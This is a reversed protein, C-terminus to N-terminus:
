QKTSAQPQRAPTATKPATAPPPATASNYAEMFKSFDLDITEPMRGTRDGAEYYLNPKTRIVRRVTQAGDDATHVDLDCFLVMDAMGLVIKRAKEPLTPVVRTFKGTRSDMEVERAHSILFLGFPLFALKTLVRQFENNIIAYGKGYALDSEHEVKYKRLIYECCFKYANDVTDIIITKFPHKGEGIEACATLLDEWSQIPVQFADLSNLGPETALFLANDAQACFTSNHVVFDNAVFNHSGEVTLDFVPEFSTPEISIVRDFIIPGLRDLQTEAARIQFLNQRLTEAKVAKEGLFGIEDIFRMLDNKACIQLEAGYLEGDRYRNRILSVIGFRSLMHQVQGVMQISTSSYSIKGQAEGSGDCSFLRNLFLKQKSRRLGFVFDPILKEASRLGDIGVERLHVIVNNRKGKKGRVRVHVVGSDNVFEVCEDGRAEVASEFDMRVIPDNKTFVPSSGNALSGDAILYALIKVLDDDTDGNCSLLPYEAVVAVRDATSLAALPKWGERTLFPHNATAEISRGTQTTLRYLQAPENELYASPMTPEIRGAEKMTLVPGHSEQVLSRITQIRGNAPNVLRTNGALCKGIKTQGYALVTLDTLSAKPPTKTTPLMPM